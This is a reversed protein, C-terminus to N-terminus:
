KNQHQLTSHCVKPFVVYVIWNGFERSANYNIKQLYWVYLTTDFIGEFREIELAYYSCPSACKVISEEIELKFIVTLSAWGAKYFRTVLALIIKALLKVSFLKEKKKKSQHWKYNWFAFPQVRLEEQNAVEPYLKGTKPWNTREWRAWEQSSYCGHNWGKHGQGCAESALSQYEFCGVGLIYELM